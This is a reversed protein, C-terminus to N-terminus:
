AGRKMAGDALADAAEGLRLGVVDLRRLLERRRLMDATLEGELLRAVEEDYYRRIQNGAKKAGLAAETAAAPSHAMALVAPRMQSVGEIIAEILRLLHEPGSVGFLHAARIFDRLNDLVDDVSRSLRFLDERDIPTTLARTLEAVLRSRGEDGEHEVDRMM